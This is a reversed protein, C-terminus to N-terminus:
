DGEHGPAKLGWGILATAAPYLVGSAPALPPVVATLVALLIGFGILGFRQVKCDNVFEQFTM